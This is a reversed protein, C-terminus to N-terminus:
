SFMESGFGLTCMARGEHVSSRQLPGGDLITVVSFLSLWFQAYGTEEKWGKFSSKDTARAWLWSRLTQKSNLMKQVGVRYETKEKQVHLWYRKKRVFTQSFLTSFFVSVAIFMYLKLLIFNWTTTYSLFSSTNMTKTDIM